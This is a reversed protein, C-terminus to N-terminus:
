WIRNGDVPPAPQSTQWMLYSYNSVLGMTRTMDVVALDHLSFARLHHLVDDPRMDQDEVIVYSCHQTLRELVSLGNAAILCEQDFVRIPLWAVNPAPVDPTRRGNAVAFAEYYRTLSPQIYAHGDGESVRSSSVVLGTSGSDIRSLCHVPLHEGKAMAAHEDPDLPLMHTNIREVTMSSALDFVKAVLGIRLGTPVPLPRQQSLWSRYDSQVVTLARVHPALKEHQFVAKPDVKAREILWARLEPVLDAALCWAVFQSSLWASLHAHGCGVDVLELPARESSYHAEAIPRLLGEWLRQARSRAYPDPRAGLERGLAGAVELASGRVRKDNPLLTLLRFSSDPVPYQRYHLFWKLQPRGFDQLGVLPLNKADNAAEPKALKSLLYAPSRLTITGAAEGGLIHSADRIAFCQFSVVAQLIRKSVGPGPRSCLDLALDLLAFYRLCYEEAAGLDFGSRVYREWARGLKQAGDILEADGSIQIARWYQSWSATTALFPGRSTTDLAVLLESSHFVSSLGRNTEGIRLFKTGLRSTKSYAIMRWLSPPTASSRWDDPTV